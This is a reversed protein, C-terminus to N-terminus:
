SDPPMIMFSFNLVRLLFFFCIMPMAAPTITAVVSSMPPSTAQPDAADVSLSGVAEGDALADAFGDALGLASSFSLSLAFALGDAFGDAEGFADLLSLSLPLVSDLLLSDLLDSLLLFSSSPLLPLLELGDEVAVFFGVAVSFGDLPLEDLGLVPPEEDLGVAFGVAFGVSFGEEPLLEPPLVVTFGVSFGAAVAFGVAFGM